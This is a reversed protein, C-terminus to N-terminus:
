FWRELAANSLRAREDPRNPLWAAHAIAARHLLEFLPLHRRLTRRLRHPKVPNYGGLVSLIQRPNKKVWLWSGMELCLPLFVRDPTGGAALEDGAGHRDYLHDWLDGQITYTRATPEMQYVHNPLTRDLLQGLALMEALHPVPKRTRAYPFWLRDVMGFGSHVDVAIACRSAFAEREVLGVLAAAEPELEGSGMFYPLRDSLRQGGVLPTGWGDPHAPANRMLDVGRGNGRTRAATGVPNVLPVVVIRSRSLSAALVEDWSLQALLTHLFAIAVEAGIRELGHVGGVVILAPATPEATGFRLAHIPFRRGAAEVQTLVEVQGFRSAPELMREIADLEPLAGMRAPVDDPGPLFRRALASPARAVTSLSASRPPRSSM